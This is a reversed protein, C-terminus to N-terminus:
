EKEEYYVLIMTGSIKELTSKMKKPVMATISIPFGRFRCVGIICEKGQQRFKLVTTNAINKSSELAKKLTTEKCSPCGLVEAPIGEVFYEEALSWQYTPMNDVYFRKVPEPEEAVSYGVFVKASGETEFIIQQSDPYVPAFGLEQPELVYSIDPPEEGIPLTGLTVTYHTLREEVSPIFSLFIINDDRKFLYQKSQPLRKFFSPKFPMLYDKQVYGQGTLMEKYFNTIQDSSLISEYRYNVMTFEDIQKVKKDIRKSNPHEPIDLSLIPRALCFILFCLFISIKKNMVM